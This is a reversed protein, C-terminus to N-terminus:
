VEVVGQMLDRILITDGYPKFLQAHFFDCGSNAEVVVPGSDCLAVDWAVLRLYRFHNVAKKVSELIDQYEAIKYGEFVIKSDPHKQFFQFYKTIGFNGLFGDTGVEVNISGQGWNDVPKDISLRLISSLVNISGLNDIYTIIRFTNLAKRNSIKAITPHNRLDEQVLLGDEIGTELISTRDSKYARKGGNDKIPKIFLYEPLDLDKLDHILESGQYYKGNDKHFFTQPHLINGRLCEDYFDGKNFTVIKLDKPDLRYLFYQQLRTPFTNLLDYSSIQPKIASIKFYNYFVFLKYYIDPKAQLYKRPFNVWKDCYLSLTSIFQMLGVHRIRKWVFFFYRYNGGGKILDKVVKVIRINSM